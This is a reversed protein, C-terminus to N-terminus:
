IRDNIFYQKKKSAHEEGTMPETCEKNIQSYM